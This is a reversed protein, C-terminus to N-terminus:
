NGEKKTSMPADAVIGEVVFENITNVIPCYLLMESDAEVEIISTIEELGSSSGKNVFVGPQLQMVETADVIGYDVLINDTEKVVGSRINRYLAPEVAAWGLPTKFLHDGTTLIRDNIKYLKRSGLKVVHMALVTNEVGPLRTALTEGVNLDIIKKEQGSALLVVSDAVFCSSDTSCACVCDCDCQCNGDSNYFANFSISGSSFYTTQNGAKQYRRGRYYNLNYLNANNTGYYFNDRNTYGVFNDRINQFSIAGSSPTPM